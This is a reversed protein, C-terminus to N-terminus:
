TASLYQDALFFVKGSRLVYVRNTMTEVVKNKKGNGTIFKPFNYCCANM